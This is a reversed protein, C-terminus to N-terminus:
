TNAWQTHLLTILINMSKCYHYIIFDYHYRNQYNKFSVLKMLNWCVEYYKWFIRFDEYFGRSPAKNWKTGRHEGEAKQGTHEVLECRSCRSKCGSFDTPLPPKINWGAESRVHVHGLGLARWMSKDCCHSLLLVWVNVYFNYHCVHKLIDEFDHNLFMARGKCRQRRQRPCGRSWGGIGWARWQRGTHLVQDHVCLDRSAADWDSHCRGSQGNQWAQGGAFALLPLTNIIYQNANPQSQTIVLGDYFWRPLMLFGSWMRFVFLDCVVHFRQFYLSQIVCSDWWQLLSATVTQLGFVFAVDMYASSHERMAELVPRTVLDSDTPVWSLNCVKRTVSKGTVEGKGMIHTLGNHKFLDAVAVLKSRTEEGEDLFVKTRGAPNWAIKDPRPSDSDILVESEAGWVFTMQPIRRKTTTSQGHIHGEVLEYVFSNDEGLVVPGAAPDENEEAGFASQGDEDPPPQENVRMKKEHPSVLPSEATRKGSEEEVLGLAAVPTEDEDDESGEERPSWTLDEEPQQKKSVAANEPTGETIALALGESSPPKKTVTRLCVLAAVEQEFAKLNGSAKLHVKPLSQGTGPVIDVDAMHVYDSPSDVRTTWHVFGALGHLLSALNHTIKGDSKALSLCFM